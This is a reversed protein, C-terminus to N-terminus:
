PTKTIIAVKWDPVLGGMKAIPAHHVAAFMALFM